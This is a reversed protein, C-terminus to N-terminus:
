KVGRAKEIEIAQSMSIKKGNHFPVVFANPIANERIYKNGKSAESYSFFLGAYIRVLDNKVTEGSIPFLGHFNEIDVDIPYYGLQIKYALGDPVMQDMEIEEADKKTDFQSIHEPDEVDRVDTLYKDDLIERIEEIQTSTDRLRSVTYNLQREIEGLRNRIAFRTKQDPAESIKENLALGVLILQDIEDEYDNAAAQFSSEDAELRLVEDEYPLVVYKDTSESGDESRLLLSANFFDMVANSLHLSAETGFVNHSKIEIMPYFERIISDARATRKEGSSLFDLAPYNTKPAHYQATDCLMLSRKIFFLATDAFLRSSDVANVYTTFKSYYYGEEAYRAAAISANKARANPFYEREIVDQGQSPLLYCTLLILLCYRTLM